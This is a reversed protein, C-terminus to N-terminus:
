AGEMVVSDLYELNQLDDYTLDRHTNAGFVRDVEEHVKEQVKANLGVRYIIWVMAWATTDQGAVLFAAAEDKILEEPLEDPNRMHETILLDLLAQPKLKPKKTVNGNM